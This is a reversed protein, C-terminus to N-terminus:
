IMLTEHIINIKDTRPENCQKRENSVPCAYYYGIHQWLNTDLKKGFINVFFLIIIIVSIHM